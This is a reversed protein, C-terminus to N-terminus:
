ETYLSLLLTASAASVYVCFTRVCTNNNSSSRKEHTMGIHRKKSHFKLNYNLLHKTQSESDITADLVTTCRKMIIKNVNVAREFFIVLFARVCLRLVYVYFM